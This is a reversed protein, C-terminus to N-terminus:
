FEFKYGVGKLTSIKDDGLKQRLKRIHVDITRDGVVVDEGWIKHLIDERTFVKGPKSTLLSILEFEKKPLTLEEEGVSVTYNEKNITIGGGGDVVPVPIQEGNRRGSSRLLAYIRSVLVRPALPKSLFDDAGAELGAILSYDENRATLFVILANKTQPLMRLERCAEIGDMIPMMIDLVILDPSVEKAIRIASEGDLATFVDSGEKKLNYALFDLVDPEDDVLLIKTNKM